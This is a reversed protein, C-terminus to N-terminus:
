ELWRQVDGSLWDSPRVVRGKTGAAALWEAEATTLKGEETKCEWLLVVGDRALITDPCGKHGQVPTRWSESGDREKVRAPRFHCAHWGFSQAMDIVDKQLETETIAAALAQQAETALFSGM